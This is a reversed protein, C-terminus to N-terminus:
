RKEKRRDTTKHGVLAKLILLGSVAVAGLRTLMVHDRIAIPRRGEIAVSAPAKYSFGGAGNERGFRFTWAKEVLSVSRHNHVIRSVRETRRLGAM